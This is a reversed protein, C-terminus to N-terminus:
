KQNLLLDRAYHKGTETQIDRQILPELNVGTEADKKLSDEMAAIVAADDAVRGDVGGEGNTSGQGGILGIVKEVLPEPAKLKSLLARATSVDEAGPEREALDWVYAAILVAALNADEGKCIQEAHRARRTARGIKKFDRKFHRKVAVAVRDKLLDEQQAVLEPPLDGLCQEAFQCYAACGFDMKPNVFRHGCRGCKRSTDDKFFEVSTGCKPCPVEFIASANWFQTDQGPCKM